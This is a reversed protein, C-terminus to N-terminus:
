LSLGSAELYQTLEDIQSIANDIFPPDVLESQFAFNFCAATESHTLIIKPLVDADPWPAYRDAMISSCYGSVQLGDRVGHSVVEIAVSFGGGTLSTLTEQGSRVAALGARFPALKGYDSLHGQHSFTAHSTPVTLSVEFHIASVRGADLTLVGTATLKLSAGDNGGIEIELGPLETWNSM